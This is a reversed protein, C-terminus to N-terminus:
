NSFFFDNHFCVCFYVDFKSVSSKLNLKILLLLFSCVRTFTSFLYICDLHFAYVKIGSMRVMRRDYMRIFCDDAGVAVLHPKTPNVAICKIESSYCLDIFVSNQSPCEHPERLDYQRYVVFFFVM